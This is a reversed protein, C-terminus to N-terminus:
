DSKANNFRTKYSRRKYEESCMSFHFPNDSKYAIEFIDTIYKEKKINKDNIKILNNFLFNQKCIM